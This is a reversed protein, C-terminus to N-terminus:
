HPNAPSPGRVSSTESMVADAQVLWDVFPGFWPMLRMAGASSLHDDDRYLVMGQVQVPCIDSDCLQVFPDAIRALGNGDTASALVKMADARYAIQEDRPVACAQASRRAVCWPVRYRQEPMPGLVIVKLGLSTLTDVTLRVGAELAEIASAPHADTPVLRRMRQSDLTSISPKGQWLTWRGAIVVGVLGQGRLGEIERLVAENFTKCIAQKSADDAPQVGLVPPCGSNSRHTVGIGHVSASAEVMRAIHAAHSDGWLLIRKGSSAPTSCDEVPGLRGFKGGIHCLKRKPDGDVTAALVGALPHAPDALILDSRYDLGMSVAFLLGTLAASVGLTRASSWSSWIRRQRIPSEIIVYTVWALVLALAALAADRALDREGLRIVRAYALLPWHWLYWGYSLLGVAVVPRASLIRVLIGSPAVSAGAIVAATSLVPLLAATGPYPLDGDLVSLAVGIGLLGGAVLLDGLWHVRPKRWLLALALGAGVGLEWARSHLMFFASQGARGGRGAGYVNIAFSVVTIVVLMGTVLARNDAHRRAALFYALILLLPWGIYFQEEVALSWTHLLPMLETPADFYGGSSHAFHLNSLYIAAHRVSRTYNGMEERLPLLILAAAIASAFLVVFFAPLLRRARRAYFDALDISGKERQEKLLLSTILYGSIVFFVDVGAFGGPVGPMGIHYAVVSAIAIARLGDIEGRYGGTASTM